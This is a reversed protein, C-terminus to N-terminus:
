FGSHRSVCLVRAFFAVANSTGAASPQSHHAKNAAQIYVRAANGCQCVQVAARSSNNFVLGTLQSVALWGSGTFSTLSAVFLLSVAM